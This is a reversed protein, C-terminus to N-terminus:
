TRALQVEQLDRM